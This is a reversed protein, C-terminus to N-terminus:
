DRRWNQQLRDTASSGSTAAVTRDVEDRTRRADLDSAIAKQREGEVGSRKGKFYASALLMVGGTIALFFRGVKSTLLAFIASLTM